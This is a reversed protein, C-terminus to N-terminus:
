KKAFLGKFSRRRGFWGISGLGLVGLLAAGPVPVHAVELSSSFYVEEDSDPDHHMLFFGSPVITRLDFVIEASEAGGLGLDPIAFDWGLAMSVDDEWGEPVNNYNDLRLDDSDPARTVYPFNEDIDGFVFGPEDIEWSQGVAPTGVAEGYENSLTNGFEIMEHDVFLGVYYDGPGSLTVTLTGLGEDFDFGSADVVGPLAEGYIALSGNINFAWDYLSIEAVAPATYLGCAALMVVVPLLLEYKTMM